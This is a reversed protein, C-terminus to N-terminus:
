PKPLTSPTGQHMQLIFGLTISVFHKIVIYLMCLFVAALSTTTFRQISRYFVETTSPLLNSIELDDDNEEITSENNDIINDISLATPIKSAKKSPKTVKIGISATSLSSSRSKKRKRKKTPQVIVDLSKITDTQKSESLVTTTTNDIHPRIIIDDLDLYDDNDNDNDNDSNGLNSDNNMTVTSTTTHPEDARKEPIVDDIDM